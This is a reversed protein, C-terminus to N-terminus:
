RKRFDQPLDTNEALDYELQTGDELEAGITFAGWAIKSMLAVGNVVKVKEVDPRFTPHLYFTVNGELPKKSPNLARVKFTLNYWGKVSSETFDALLLEFNENEDKPKGGFQGKIPDNTDISSLSKTASLLRKTTGPLTKTGGRQEIATITVDAKQKAEKAEEKAIKAEEKTDKVEKTLRSIVSDSVSSIFRTSSIAALVCFSVLLVVQNLENNIVGQLVKSQTVELFIPVIIAAGVGIILSRGITHVENEDPAKKLNYYYNVLGGLIGSVLVIAVIIWFDAWDVSKNIESYKKATALLRNLSDQAITVSDKM